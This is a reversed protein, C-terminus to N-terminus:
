HNTTWGGLYRAPLQFGVKVEDLEGESGEQADGQLSNQPSEARNM